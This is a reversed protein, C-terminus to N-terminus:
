VVGGIFLAIGILCTLVSFGQNSEAAILRPHSKGCFKSLYILEKTAMAFWFFSALNFMIVLLLYM